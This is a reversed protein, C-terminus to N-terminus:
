RTAARRVTLPMRRWPMTRRHRRIARPRHLSPPASCPVTSGAMAASAVAAASRRFPPGARTWCGRVRCNFSRARPMGATACWGCAATDIPHVASETEEPRQDRGRGTMLICLNDGLSVSVTITGGFPTARIIYSLLDLIARKFRREDVKVQPLAPPAAIAIRIQRGFAQAGAIDLCSDLMRLVDVPSSTAGAVGTKIAALEDVRTVVDLMDQGAVIALDIFHRREADSLLGDKLLHLISRVTDLKDRMACTAATLHSYPM